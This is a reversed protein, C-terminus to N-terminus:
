QLVRSTCQLWTRDRLHDCGDTRTRHRLITIQDPRTTAVPDVPSESIRELRRPHQAPPGMRIVFTDGPDAYNWKADLTIFLTTNEPEAAAHGETIIIGLLVLTLCLFMLNKKKM